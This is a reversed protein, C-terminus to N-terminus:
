GGGAGCRGAVAVDDHADSVEAGLAAEAGRSEGEVRARAEHEKDM